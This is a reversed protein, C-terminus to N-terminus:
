VTVGDFAPTKEGVWYDQLFDVPEKTKWIPNNEDKLIGSEFGIVALPIKFTSAPSYQM